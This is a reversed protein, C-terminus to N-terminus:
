RGFVKALQDFISNIVRWFFSVPPQSDKSFGPDITPRPTIKQGSPTPKIITSDSGCSGQSGQSEQCSEVNTEVSVSSSSTGDWSLVTFNKQSAFTTGQGKLEVDLYYTGPDSPAFFSGTYFYPGQGTKSLAINQVEQHNHDLVRALSQVEGDSVSMIRVYLEQRPSFDNILRNGEELSYLQVENSGEDLSITPFAPM